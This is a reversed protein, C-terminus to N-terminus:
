TQQLLFKWSSEAEEWADKTFIQPWDVLFEGFYKNKLRAVPSQECRMPSVQAVRPSGRMDKDLPQRTFRWLKKL